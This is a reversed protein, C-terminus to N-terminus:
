LFSSGSRNSASKDPLLNLGIGSSFILIAGVILQWDLPEGLYLVGFAAVLPVEATLETEQGAIDVEETLISVLQRLAPDEGNVTITSPVVSVNEVRRGRAPEGTLQADSQSPMRLRQEAFSGINELGVDPRYGELRDVM